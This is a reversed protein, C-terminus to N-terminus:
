KEDFLNIIKKFDNPIPAKLEIMLKSIPHMFKIKYAHLAYRDLNKFVEDIILKNKQHFSKSINISGGYTDDMLIPHGIESLHVRLQHTRGTLPRLKLYTFPELFKIIKYETFSYKGYNDNLVFKKRNKKSRTLYGKIDGFSNTRGWVIARYEKKISRSAFQEGLSHHVKDTKAVLMVGSTFKDLRHVLGPRESKPYSLYKFRYLLGNLITGDKNGAGPHVIIGPKKNLAILHEDEYIIDLPIDQKLITENDKYQNNFDVLIIEKGKLKYSPKVIFDDVRVLGNLILKQIQSRSLDDLKQNLFHDLRINKITSHFEKQNKMKKIMQM